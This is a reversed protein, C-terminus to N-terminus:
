LAGRCDAAIARLAAAFDAAVAGIEEASHTSPYHYFAFGLTKGAEGVM